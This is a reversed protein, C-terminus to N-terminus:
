AACPRLCLFASETVKPLNPAQLLMGGFSYTNRELAVGQAVYSWKDRPLKPRVELQLTSDVRVGPLSALHVDLLAQQGDLTGELRGVARQQTISQVRFQM